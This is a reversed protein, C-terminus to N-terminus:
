TAGPALLDLHQYVEEVSLVIELGTVELGGAEAVTLLWQGSPMRQFYELRHTDQAVLLYGQLSTLHRYHAFKAGRDYLETDPSLVEVLLIRNTLASPSKPATRPPGCVVTLDPYACLGTEGVIVRQDSSMVLCRRGLLGNGICRALNACLTTHALSGGAWAVIEGNVWEHKQDSEAELALYEDETWTKHTTGEM